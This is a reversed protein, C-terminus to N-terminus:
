CFVFLGIWFHASSRFLCKELSTMCIALLCMFLDEVENIMLSICISVVILCWRVGTLIAIMLFFVFLLHQHPHPSFPVKMCQQHSHLKTYGSHFVTHLNRLFSVVSSGYSRAIGSRPIYRFFVFGSIQFSVHVGINMAANNVIVLIHFCGWHIDVSSDIFFLNCPKGPPATTSFRGALAPSM